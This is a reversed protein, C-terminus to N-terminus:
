CVLAFPHVTVHSFLAAPAEPAEEYDFGIYAGMANERDDTSIGAAPQLSLMLFPTCINYANRRKNATDIAM